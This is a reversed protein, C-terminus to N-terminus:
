GISSLLRQAEQKQGPNGEDLVEQLISRAGDPDGMDMYARALDLKTGVESMTAPEIGSMDLEANIVETRQTEARSMAGQGGFVQDSFDDSDTGRGTQKVTDGLSNIGKPDALRDLDMDLDSPAHFIGTHGSDLRVQEVTDGVGAGLQDLDVDIKQTSRFTGTGDLDVDVADQTDDLDIEEVTITDGIKIEPEGLDDMHPALLTKTESAGDDFREALRTLEDDGIQHSDIGEAGDEDLADVNLGIEDLSLEATRDASSIEEDFRSTDLKERITVAGRDPLSSSEITPTEQTRANGDMERTPDNDVGRQPEDLLFDLGADDNKRQEITPDLQFDIDGDSKPRDGEPADYLDIDVRHEGGELNVDISDASRSGAIDGAFLAEDPCIQKGMILVKDWEGPAAADQTDHLQQAIDLFSDKNGWVFFIEALKVKLDRRQPEREIALNVIDSAQDYLGYAMHFDAEALADQQDVHIATESSLTDESLTKKATVPAAAAYVPQDDLAEHEGTSEVVSVAAAAAPAASSARRAIHAEFDRATYTEAADEVLSSQRRRFWLLLAVILLLAGGILWLGYQSLRSLLGPQPAAPTEPKVETAPEAQAPVSAPESAAASSSEASEVPAASESSAAAAMGSQGAGLSQQMQALEANKLDLLRRAEALEAELARIREASAANGGGAQGTTTGGQEAPVLRLRESAATSGAANAAANRWLGNQRSIEASAEASSVAAIDAAAPIRLVSGARLVNMNGVFAPQNARYIALMTQRTTANDQTITNAIKSLTDGNRVTYSEGAGVPAAAAVSPRSAPVPAPVPAQRVIAGASEAGARPTQVPQSAVAAPGMVPPDLLVTYERLVRGGTWSVEVLLNLFPESVASTSRVKIVPQGSSADAVQLSFSSLFNPRDLGYRRFTEESALAVKLSSLEDSTASVLAIDADFPQNLASNLRIEGLGLAYLTAPSLLASAVLFRLANKNM